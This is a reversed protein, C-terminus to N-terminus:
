ICLLACFAQSLSARLSLACEPQLTVKVSFLDKPREFVLVSVGWCPQKPLNFFLFFLKCTWWGCVMFLTPQTMFYFSHKDWFVLLRHGWEASFFKVCISDALSPKTSHLGSPQLKLLHGWKIYFKYTFLQSCKLLRSSVCLVQFFLRQVKKFQFYIHGGRFSWVFWCTAHSWAHSLGM